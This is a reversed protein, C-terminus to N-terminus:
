GDHSDGHHIVLDWTTGTHVDYVDASGATTALGVLYALALRWGRSRREGIAVRTVPTLVPM